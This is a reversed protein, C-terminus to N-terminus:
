QKYSKKIRLDKLKKVQESKYIEQPMLKRALPLLFTSIRILYFKSSFEDNIGSTNKEDKYQIGLM